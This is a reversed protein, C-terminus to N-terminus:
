VVKIIIFNFIQRRIRSTLSCQCRSRFSFIVIHTKDAYEKNQLSINLYEKVNVICYKLIRKVKCYLNESYTKTVHHNIKDTVMQSYNAISIHM